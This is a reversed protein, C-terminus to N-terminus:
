VQYKVRTKKIERTSFLIVYDSLGTEASVTRVIERCAERARGHIMAFLNYNWLPNTKREYCHSVQPLSALKGGAADVKDKPAVWCTMANAKYGANRHNVAAGYRRMIGRKKLSRCGALFHNETMGLRAAMASFPTRTPPLDQQLENIIARDAQSLRAKGTLASDTQVTTGAKKHGDDMTFCAGIKYIKVAPLAIRAEVGFSSTLQELARELDTGPHAALTFWLNFYHDREYAHSVGPHAIILQEMRELADGTVRMALLTPQYGLKRADFVPSIQRVIKRKRLLKIYQIVEEHNIGLKTGLESYPERSLPFDTQLLGILKRSTHDLITKDM